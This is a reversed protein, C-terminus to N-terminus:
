VDLNRVNLANDEIFQRRPEVEDGMLKTFMEEAEVVDTLDIRLLKRNEPNMTTDFLEKANMEGLGKFRQVQIGRKGAEEVAFKALALQEPSLYKPKLRSGWGINVVFVENALSRDLDSVIRARTLEGGNTLWRIAGYERPPTKFNAAAERVPPVTIQQWQRQAMATLACLLGGALKRTVSM